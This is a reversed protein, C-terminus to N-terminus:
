EEKIAEVPCEGICVGCQTCKDQDIVAKGDVMSIAEVPCVSVCNECGTCEDADVKVMLKEELVLFGFGICALM